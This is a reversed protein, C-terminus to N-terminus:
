LRTLWDVIRDFLLGSAALRGQMQLFGHLAGAFRHHEILNGATRLRGAYAEGEDRLPDHAATALFTPPLGTLDAALIPSARPDDRQARDGLYLDIQRELGDGEIIRGDESRRSPYDAHARLDTNPYLLVQGALVPGGRDRVTTALATALTGGISDGSVVLRDTEEAVMSLAAVAEELQAPFRAEPALRYAPAAVIWGTRKALRRLAPDHGDLSGAIAGGGHLHFLIPLRGTGPRYLRVPVGEVLRHEIAFLPELKGDLRGILATQARFDALWHADDGANSAPKRAALWALVAEADRDM